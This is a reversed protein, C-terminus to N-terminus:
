ALRVELYIYRVFAMEGRNESEGHKQESGRITNSRIIKRSPEANLKCVYPAPQGHQVRGGPQVTM